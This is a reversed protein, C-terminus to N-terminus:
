KVAKAAALADSHQPRMNCIRTSVYHLLKSGSEADLSPLKRPAVASSACEDFLHEAIVRWKSEEDEMAAKWHVHSCGPVFEKICSPNGKASGDGLAARMVSSHQLTFKLAKASRQSTSNKPKLFTCM